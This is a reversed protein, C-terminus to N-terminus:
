EAQAAEAARAEAEAKDAKYAEVLASWATKAAETLIPVMDTKHEIGMTTTVGLTAPPGVESDAWISQPFEADFVELYFRAAPYAASTGPIPGSVTVVGDQGVKWTVPGTKGIVYLLNVFVLADVGLSEHLKKREPATLGGVRETWLIGPTYIRMGGLQFNSAEGIKEVYMAKAVPDNAVEERTKVAWGQSEAIEAVLADYIAKGQVAREAVKEDTGMTAMEQISGATGSGKGQGRNEINLGAAVAVIAASKVAEVRKHQIASGGCGAGLVMAGLGVFLMGRLLNM